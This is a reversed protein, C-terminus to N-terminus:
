LQYILLKVRSLSKHFKFSIELINMWSFANSFTMQWCCGHQEPGLTNLPGLQSRWKHDLSHWLRHPGKIAKYIVDIVNIHRSHSLCSMYTLSIATSINYDHVVLLNSASDATKTLYKKNMEDRLEKSGLVFYPCTEANSPVITQRKLHQNWVWRLGSTPWWQAQLHGLM